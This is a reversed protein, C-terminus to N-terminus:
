KSKRIIRKLLGKRKTKEEKPEVNIIEPLPEIAPITNELIPDFEITNKIERHQSSPIFMILLLIALIINM